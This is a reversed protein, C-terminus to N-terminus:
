FYIFSASYYWTNIITNFDFSIYQFIKLAIFWPTFLLYSIGKVAYRGVTTIGGMVVKCSMLYM